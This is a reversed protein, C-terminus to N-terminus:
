KIEVEWVEQPNVSFNSYRIWKPRVKFYEQRPDDKYKKSLANKRCHIDEATIREDGELRRAEGEIQLTMASEWGIVLSIRPDRELNRNKRTEKFSGFIIELDQTESVAVVASKPTTGSNTAVVGFQSRQLLALVKEKKSVDM